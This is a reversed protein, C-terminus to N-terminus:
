DEKTKFEAQSRNVYIASMLGGVGLIIGPVSWNLPDTLSPLPRPDLTPLGLKTFPVHSLVLQLTGGAEHEGYVRDEYYKGPASKIRTHAKELMEERPGWSLAGTPCAEVCSPGLGQALRNKDDVVGEPQVYGFCFTCKQVLPTTTGWQYRPVKYPCAVMCYRCGFCRNVDYIVPGEPSKQMAGVTCASVCAPDLCHMCNRKIFSFIGPADADEATEEEYLKIITWTSGSLDTPMDYMGESNLEATTENWNRCANQCARCGVCLTTDYLMSPHRRAEEPTSEAAAPETHGAALVLSGVGAGALKLFDRRNVAM